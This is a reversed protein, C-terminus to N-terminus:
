PHEILFSLLATENKENLKLTREEEPLSLLSQLAILVSHAEEDTCHDFFESAFPKYIDPQFFSAAEKFAQHQALAGYYRNINYGNQVTGAGVYSINSAGAGVGGVGAQMAKIASGSIYSSYANSYANSYAYNSVPQKEEEEPKEQEEKEQKKMFSPWHVIEWLDFM